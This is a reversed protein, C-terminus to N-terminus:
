SCEEMYDSESESSSGDFIKAFSSELGLYEDFLRFEDGHIIPFQALKPHIGFMHNFLARNEHYLMLLTKNPAYGRNCLQLEIPIEGWRCDDSITCIAIIGSKELSDVAYWGFFDVWIKEELLIFRRTPIQLYPVGFSAILSGSNQLPLLSADKLVQLIYEEGKYEVWKTKGEASLISTRLKWEAEESPDLFTRRLLWIGESDLLTQESTDFFTDLFFHSKVKSLLPSILPLADKTILFHSSDKKIPSPVQACLTAEEFAHKKLSPVISWDMVDM